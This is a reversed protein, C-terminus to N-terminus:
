QLEKHREFKFTLFHSYVNFITFHINNNKNM